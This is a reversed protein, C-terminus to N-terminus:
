VCVFDRRNPRIEALRRFAELKDYHDPGMSLAHAISRLGDATAPNCLDEKTLCGYFPQKSDLNKRIERLALPASSAVGSIALVDYGKKVLAQNAQIAGLPGDAALIIGDIRNKVAPSDLLRVNDQQYVGDAIELVVTDCGEAQLKNILGDMIKELEATSVMYTSPYGMDVFDYGAIAGSDLPGFVDGSYGTGTMKGFGVTHGAQTLGKITACATTTKGADMGTGLFAIVVPKEATTQSKKPALSFQRTNLRQGENDCLFGKPQIRTTASMKSNKNVVNAAVGGRSVLDCEALGTPLTAEYEAIAYRQGYALLVLDGIHIDEERGNPNQLTKIDGVNTIQALIIDGIKPAGERSINAAKKFDVNRLTTAIRACAETFPMKIRNPVM